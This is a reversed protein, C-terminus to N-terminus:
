GRPARVSAVSQFRPKPTPHGQIDLNRFLPSVLAGWAEDQAATLPLPRFQPPPEDTGTLPCKPAGRVPAGCAADMGGFNLHAHDPLAAVRPNM